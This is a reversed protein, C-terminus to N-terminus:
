LLQLLVWGTFVLGVFLWFLGGRRRRPTTYSTGGGVPFPGASFGQKELQKEAWVQDMIKAHRANLQGTREWLQRTFETRGTPDYYPGYYDSNPGYYNSM